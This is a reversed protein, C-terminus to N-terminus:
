QALEFLMAMWCQLVSPVLCFIAWNQKVHMAVHIKPAAEWGV